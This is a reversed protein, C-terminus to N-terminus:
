WFSNSLQMSWNPLKKLGGTKSAWAALSTLHMSWTLSTIGSSVILLTFRKASSKLFSVPQATWSGNKLAINLRKWLILCAHNVCIKISNVLLNLM